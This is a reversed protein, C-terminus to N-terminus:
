VSTSKAKRMPPNKRSVRTCYFPGMAKSNMSSVRVEDPM